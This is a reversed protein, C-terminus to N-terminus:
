DYDNRCLIRGGEQEERLRDVLREAPMRVDGFHLVDDRAIERQVVAGEALGMPLLDERQVVDANECQGYLMFQGIGDLKDGPHLDRKAAAVVEVRLAGQPAITADGYLAARAISGAIELHCLHYPRIFCYLPGDGMKYYRMFQQHLADDSVALIFVGPAPAAGIVYDVIGEGALLTEVDFQSVAEEVPTGPAAQLGIMGRKAVRMNTANAIVAQEFSIKTGDAFSTVMHAKQGWQAAFNKQTEPTRYHDELGKINGCLVPRMGMGQIFRYLNMLVGPQDGDAETIVVGARDAKQKLIPGVTATLEANYGVVHKGHAIATMALAAGGEISATLDLIVDIEDSRALLLGDETVVPRGQHIFESVQSVKEAV